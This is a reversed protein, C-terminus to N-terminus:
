FQLLRSYLFYGEADDIFFMRDREEGIPTGTIFERVTAHYFKIGKTDDSPLHVISSIPKLIQRIAEDTIGLLQSMSYLSLSDWAAVITGVVLRYNDAVHPPYLKHPNPM